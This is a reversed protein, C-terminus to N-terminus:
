KPVAKTSDPKAITPISDPVGIDARMDKQIDYTKKEIWANLLGSIGLTNSLTADFVKGTANVVKETGNSAADITKKGLPTEALTVTLNYGALGYMSYQMFKKSPAFIMFIVNIALVVIMIKGNKTGLFEFFFEDRCSSDLLYGITAIVAAALSICGIFISIFLIPEYISAFWLPLAVGFFLSTLM